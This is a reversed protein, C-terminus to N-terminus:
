LLSAKRHGTAKLLSQRVFRNVLSVSDPHLFANSRGLLYQFKEVPFSHLLARWENYFGNQAFNGEINLWLIRRSQEYASCDLLFHNGDEIMGSPYLKCSKQLLTSEDQTGHFMQANLGFNGSRLYFKFLASQRNGQSLYLEPGYMPMISQYHKRASYGSQSLSETLSLSEQWEQCDLVRVRRKVEQKFSTLSTLSSPLGNTWWSTLSLEELIRYVDNCWCSPRKEIALVIINQDFHAKSILFVEIALSDHASLLLRGLMRLKVLRLHSKVSMWVLDGLVAERTINSCGSKGLIQRGAM